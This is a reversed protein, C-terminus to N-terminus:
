AGYRRKRIAEDIAAQNIGRRAAEHRAADAERRWEAEAREGLRHELLVRDDETLEDILDLIQQISAQSM